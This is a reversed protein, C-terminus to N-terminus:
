RMHLDRMQDPQRSAEHVYRKRMRDVGSTILPRSYLSRSFSIPMDASEKMTTKTREGM